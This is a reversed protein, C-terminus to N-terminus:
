FNHRIPSPASTTLTTPSATSPGHRRASHTHTHTHARARARPHRHTHTYTHTHPHTPTQTLSLSLGARLQQLSSCGHSRHDRFCMWPFSDEGIHYMITYMIVDYYERERGRVSHKVDIVCTVYIYIYSLLFVIRVKENCVRV